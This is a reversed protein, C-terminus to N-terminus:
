TMLFIELFVVNAYDLIMCGLFFLTDIIENSIVSNLCPKGNTEFLFM